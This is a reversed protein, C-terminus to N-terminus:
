MRDLMFQEARPSIPATVTQTETLQEQGATQLQQRNKLSGSLDQPIPPNQPHLQVQLNCPRIPPHQFLRDALVSFRIKTRM